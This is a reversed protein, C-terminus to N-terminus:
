TQVSHYFDEIQGLIWMKFIENKVFNVIGFDWKQCFECNEFDWKQGFQFYIVYRM